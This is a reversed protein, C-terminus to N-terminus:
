CRRSFKDCAVGNCYVSMEWEMKSYSDVIKVAKCTGMGKRSGSGNGERFQVCEGCKNYGNAM